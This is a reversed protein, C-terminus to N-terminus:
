SAVAFGYRSGHTTAFAIIAADATVMPCGAQIASAILLRDMPDKRTFGSLLPARIAAEPDLPLGIFGPQALLNRLWEDPPSALNIRGAEALTAVEWASVASVLLTGGSQWTRNVVERVAPRLRRNGTTFWLIIHTDLLLTDNM